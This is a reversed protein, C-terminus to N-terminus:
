TGGEVGLCDGRALLPVAACDTSMATLMGTSSSLSAVGKLRLLLFCLEAGEVGDVIVATEESVTSLSSVVNPSM